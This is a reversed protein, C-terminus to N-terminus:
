AASAKKRRRLGGVVMMGLLGLGVAPPVPVVGFEDIQFDDTLFTLRLATMDGWTIGSFSSFSLFHRTFTTPSYSTAAITWVASDTSDGDWVDIQVQRSVDLDNVDLYFSSYGAFSGLGATPTIAAGDSAPDAPALVSGDWTVHATSGNLPNPAFSNNSSFQLTGGTSTALSVDGSGAVLNLYLERYGGFMGGSVSDYVPNPAMTNPVSISQFETFDDIVAAGAVPAMLGACALAMALLGFKKLRRM